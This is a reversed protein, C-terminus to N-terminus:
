ESYPKDSEILIRDEQTWGVYFNLAKGLDRLRFYNNGDIGYVSLQVAEGNIYITDKSVVATRSGGQAPGALETGTMAYPQGSTLIVAKRNGDYDVSFQKGTGNLIAALDRLKFYNYEGIAFATPSQAKGDVHLQDSSPVASAPQAPVDPTPPTVPVTPVDLQFKAQVSINGKPMRFTYKNNGIDTLTLENGKSDTVTLKELVHGFSPTATITVRQGETASTPALKVTGGTVRTPVSITYYPDSNESSDPTSPTTDILTWQAYVTTDATFVTRTTVRTGSYTYWGNFTYGARTPVPLSSLRGDTGTTMTQYGSFTVTYVVPDPVDPVNPIDPVDPVDPVDPIDPVNGKVTLAIRKPSSEGEYACLAVSGSGGATGTLLFTGSGPEGNAATAITQAATSDKVDAVVPRLVSSRSTFGENVCYLLPTKVTEGVDVSLPQSSQLSTNLHSTLTSVTVDAPVRGSSAPQTTDSGNGFLQVWYLVGNSEYCGVGIQTMNANLINARHGESNMWGDMVASPSTYGAAINEAVTTYSYAGDMITFCRSGNPRTHSYYLACEAARQMALETLKGSLTLPGRSNDARNSNVSTFVNSVYDYRYAGAVTVNVADGSPTDPVDPTDPTDPTDGNGSFVDDLCSAITQPNNVAGRAYQIYTGDGGKTIVYAQAFAQNPLTPVLDLYASWLQSPSNSNYYANVFKSNGGLVSLFSQVATRDAGSIEVATVSVRRDALWDCSGLRQFLARSNGCATSFFILVAAGSDPVTYQFCELEGSSDAASYVYLNNSSANEPVTDKINLRDDAALATVPLLTLAMCLALFISLIKKKM